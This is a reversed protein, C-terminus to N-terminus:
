SGAPSVRNGGQAKAEYLAQDAKEVLEARDRADTPYSAVGISVTMTRDEFALERDHKPSPAEVVRTLRKATTVADAKGAEVLIVAFEDGGYRAV